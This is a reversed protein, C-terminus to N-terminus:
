VIRLSYFITAFIPFAVLGSIQCLLLTNPHLGGNNCNIRIGNSQSRLFGRFEAISRISLRYKIASRAPILLTSNRISSCCRLIHIRSIPPSQAWFAREALLRANWIGTGQRSILTRVTLDADIYTSSVLSSQSQLLTVGVGNELLM